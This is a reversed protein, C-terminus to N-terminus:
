VAWYYDYEIGNGILALVSERNETSESFDTLVQPWTKSANTELQGLWWAYGGIDPERGLVNSYVKTLFDDNSPNTGYLTKFENSGIFEASVSYLDKGLDMQDIWYGLGGEDPTRNFAAKYIRYCSGGIEGAGIDFAVTKDTFYAREVNLLNDTDNNVANNVTWTKDGTNLISYQAIPYYYISFDLGSGGDLINFGAQGALDDNGAGGFLNDDGERGYLDDNGDGGYIHDNGEAGSVLDNGDDGHLIDGNIGGFIEDNGDGGWFFKSGSNLWGDLYDNGSGGEIYDIGNGAYLSDNGVGGYLDDHGEGGYLEDNGEGGSVIDDGVWGSIYDDGIGGNLTDNGEGGYLEDNGAGGFLQDNGSYGSIIDNGGHGYAVDSSNSLNFTDNGNLLQNILQYDDTTSQTQAKTYISMAPISIGEIGFSEAYTSGTWVLELYANAVGGTIFDLSDVTLGYGAFISARYNSGLQWDVHYIDSYRVGNYTVNTNDYFNWDWANYYLRSLDLNDQDFAYNAFINAM